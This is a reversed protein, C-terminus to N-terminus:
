HVVMRRVISICHTVAAAKLPYGRQLMQKRYASLAEILTEIEVM